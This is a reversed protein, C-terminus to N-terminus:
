LHDLPLWLVAESGVSSFLDLVMGPQFIEWPLVELILLYLRRKNWWLFVVEILLIDVLLPTINFVLLELLIM